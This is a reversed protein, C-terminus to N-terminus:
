KDMFKDLRIWDSVPEYIGKEVNAKWVRGVPFRNSRITLPASLGGTDFDEMSQLANILGPGNLEGAKDAKRLCGVAILANVIGQMYHNDRFKVEPYKTETYARIKRIMPVDENWWYMYPNVVTYGEALPGLRDLVMKSAGWFTGMFTCTMGRARCMHIVAPVPDVIFGHFIVFDPSKSQLDDIQATIDKAGLSVVEEAVLQLRLRQCVISGYRIPDKGFESDSYFFAVKAGPKEKAIYKLLIAFMDGYTPGAVFTYPNIGPQALEGSFSTSGYLVHYREKLDLSVAKSMATSEGIMVLPNDLEMIKKFAALAVDLKYQGDMITWQIKKGNIGGEQNAITLADDVASAGDKGAFGFIGTIPLVAGIKVVNEAPVPVAILCSLFIAVLATLLTTVRV